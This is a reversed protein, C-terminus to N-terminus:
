NGAERLYSLDFYKAPSGKPATFKEAAWVLDMVQRVGDETVQPRPQRYVTNLVRQAADAPTNLRAPLLEIARTHNAADQLWAYARNFGKIFAILEAKHAQAWARRTASVPGPYTPFFESSSGLSKFGAAILNRDFPPNLFCASGEGAKMADFREQSGGVNKFHTDSEALGYRAFLTKLMLSYGTRADDVIITKGKLDAVTNIDKAVVLSLAPAHSQGMFIFLDAGLEVGRVIHDVQQFGIDFEGKKLADLQKISLGTVTIDVDIGANKWFGMSQAIYVPWTNVGESILALKIMHLIDLPQNTRLVQPM